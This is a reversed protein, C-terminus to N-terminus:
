AVKERWGGAAEGQRFVGQCVREGRVRLTYYAVIHLESAGLRRRVENVGGRAGSGGRRRRAEKVLGERGRGGGV